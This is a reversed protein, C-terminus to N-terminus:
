LLDRQKCRLGVMFLITLLMVIGCILSLMWIKENQNIQVSKNTAGFTWKIGQAIGFFMACNIAPLILYVIYEGPGNTYRGISLIIVDDPTDPHFKIEIKDGCQLKNYTISIITKIAIFPGHYLIISTEDIYAISLNITDTPLHHINNNTSTLTYM